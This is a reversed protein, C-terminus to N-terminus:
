FLFKRSVNEAVSFMDDILEKIKFKPVIKLITTSHLAKTKSLLTNARRERM